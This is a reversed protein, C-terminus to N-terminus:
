EASTALRGLANAHRQKITHPRDDRVTYPGLRCDLLAANTVLRGWLATTGTEDDHTGICM